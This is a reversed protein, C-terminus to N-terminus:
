QVVIFATSSARGNSTVVVPVASGTVGTPITCNIQNLGAFGPTLGAYLVPCNQGGVTVTPQIQAYNLGNQLTTAGLGTLFLELFNGAHLPNSQSVVAGTAANEAAATSNADLLFISPVAPAVRVNVSNEGNANKVTLQTLAPNVSAYVFNIQGPSTFVLPQPTGNVLVQVDAIQTPYPQTGTM